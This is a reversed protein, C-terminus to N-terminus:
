GHIDAGMSIPFRVGLRTGSGPVSQIQLSGGLSEIRHRLGSLGIRENQSLKQEVMFGPGNDIVTVEVTSGDIRGALQQGQGSAHRFANNLGEQAFRFLCITVPLPLRPPMSEVKISVRTGTAREHSRAAITLADAPSIKQLEPLALGSSINRIEKMADSTASRITALVHKHTPAGDKQVSNVVPVLEDLRLLALALHQAPGDHLDSSVRRLFRENLETARMHAAQLQQRLVINQQNLAEVETIRSELELRRQDILCSGGRVIAFILTLLGLGFGFAVLWSNGTKHGAFISVTVILTVAFIAAWRGPPLAASVQQAQRVMNAFPGESWPKFAPLVLTGLRSTFEPGSLILRM